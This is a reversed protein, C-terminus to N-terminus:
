FEWKETRYIIADGLNEEECLFCLWYGPMAASLQRRTVSGTNELTAEIAALKADATEADHHHDLHTWDDNEIGCSCEHCVGITKRECVGETGGFVMSFRTKTKAKDNM